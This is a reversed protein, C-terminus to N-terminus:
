RSRAGGRLGARRLAGGARASAQHIAAAALEKGTGSEGELLVTANSPAARELQAFLERM